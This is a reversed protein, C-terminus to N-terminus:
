LADSGGGISCIEIWLFVNESLIHQQISHVTGARLYHENNKQIMDDLFDIFSHGHAEVHKLETMSKESPWIGM